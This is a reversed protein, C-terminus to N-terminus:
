GSCCGSWGSRGAQCSPKTVPQSNPRRYLALVNRASLAIVLPLLGPAPPETGVAETVGDIIETVQRIQFLVDAKRGAHQSLLLVRRQGEQRRQV